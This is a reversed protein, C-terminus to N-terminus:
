GAHTVQRKLLETANRLSVIDGVLRHVEDRCECVAPDASNAGKLHQQLELVHTLATDASADVLESIGM